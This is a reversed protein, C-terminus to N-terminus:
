GGGGNRELIGERIMTTLVVKRGPWDLGDAIESAAVPRGALVTAITLEAVKPFDLERGASIVVVRDGRVEMRSRLLPRHQVTDQRGLSEAGTAQSMYNDARPRFASGVDDLKALLVKNGNIEDPLREVRERLEDRIAEFPTGECRGFGIPVNERWRSSRLVLEGLCQALFESWTYAILGLTIHLSAEDRTEAAHIIGRPIYLVEGASITFEAEIPGPQHEGPDFPQSALPADEGGGYIRWHKSGEVQMVFVDHTDWHPNFGQSQPPTLYINTQTRAGAQRTLAACVRRLPEHRDHLANFIVTAGEAFLRGIRMPDVLGPGAWGYESPDVEQDARVVRVQPARLGFTGLVSDVVESTLLGRFRDRRVDQCHLARKGLVREMFSLKSPDFGLIWALPNLDDLEATESCTHRHTVLATM